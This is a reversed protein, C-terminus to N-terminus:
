ILTSDDFSMVKTPSYGARKEDKTKATNTQGGGGVVRAKISTPTGTAYYKKSNSQKNKLNTIQHQRKLKIAQRRENEAAELVLRNQELEADLKAKLADKVILEKIRQIEKVYTEHIIKTIRDKQEVKSLELNFADRMQDHQGDKVGRDAWFQKALKM